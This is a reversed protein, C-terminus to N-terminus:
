CSEPGTSGNHKLIFERRGQEVEERPLNGRMLEDDSLASLRAFFAFGAPESACRISRGPIKNFGRGTTSPRTERTGSRRPKKLTRVPGEM